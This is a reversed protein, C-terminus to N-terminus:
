LNVRPLYGRCNSSHCLCPVNSSSVQDVPVCDAYNYTLETGCPISRNAFMCVYPIVSDVHVPVLTLNPDCSHNVLRAVPLSGNPGFSNGDVCVESVLSAGAFCRLILIYNHGYKSLQKTERKCAEAYPIVEGLYVCVLEGPEFNRAANLCQGVGCRETIRYIMHSERQVASLHRQVVRNPCSSSCTCASNCEFVPHRFDLLRGDKTYSGGSRSRCTCEDQCGDAACSCGMLQDTILSWPIDHHFILSMHNPKRFVCCSCIIPM